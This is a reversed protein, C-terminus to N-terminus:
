ALHGMFDSDLQEFDDCINVMGKAEGLKRVIRPRTLSKLEVVPTNARTIIVEEGAEAEAILSELQSAADHVDIQM